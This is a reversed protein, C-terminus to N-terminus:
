FTEYERIAMKVNKKLYGALEQKELKELVTKAKPSQIKQLAEVCHGLEITSCKHSEIAKELTRAARDSKNFGLATIAQARIDENPDKLLKELTPVCAHDETEGLLLIARYQFHGNGEPYNGSAYEQLLKMAEKGLQFIKQTVEDDFHDENLYNDLQDKISKQDAM